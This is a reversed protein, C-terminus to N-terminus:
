SIFSTLLQQKFNTLPISKNFYCYVIFTANGLWYKLSYLKKKVTNMEM